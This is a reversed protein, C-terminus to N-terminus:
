YGFDFSRPSGGLLNQTGTELIRVQPHSLYIGRTELIRVQPDSTPLRPSLRPIGGDTLEGTTVM